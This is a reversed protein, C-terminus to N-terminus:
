PYSSSIFNSRVSVFEDFFLSGTPAYNGGLYGLRAQDVGFYAANNLNTREFDPSNENDNNVWIRYIGNGSGITLQIEIVNPGNVIPLTARVKDGSANKRAWAKIVYGSGSQTGQLKMQAVGVNPGGSFQQQNAFKLRESGDPAIGVNNPDFYFRSRYSTERGPTSDQVYRKGAVGNVGALGVKLGCNTGGMAATGNVVLDNGSDLVVDWANTTGGVCAAYSLGYASMGVVAGCAVLTAKVFSFNMNLNLRLTM